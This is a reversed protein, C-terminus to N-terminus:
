SQAGITYKRFLYSAFSACAGFMFVAEDQGVKADSQDLYAHRIGEEDSTYGYLKILAEKFAPHLKEKHQEISKLAM